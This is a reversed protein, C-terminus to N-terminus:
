YYYWARREYVPRRLAAPYDEQISEVRQKASEDIVGIETILDWSCQRHVLFEAQKRRQRDPNDRTDKWYRMGVVGWDIETLRDLSDFWVTFAALRHGDSFAVGNPPVSQAQTVLYILPGQGETYGRVQGTKLQLLMPSLVGFYFSVYDHIVGGPGCPIVRQRSQLQIDENHITRYVLGDSPCHNPAHLARRQLMIRLNDLHILRYIPTPNPVPM